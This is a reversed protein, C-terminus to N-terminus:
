MVQSAAKRTCSTSIRLDDGRDPNDRESPHGRQPVWSGGPKPFSGAASPSGGPLSSNEVPHTWQTGLAAPCFRSLGLSLRCEEM